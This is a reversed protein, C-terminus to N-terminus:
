HDIAAGADLDASATAGTGHVKAGGTAQGAVSATGGLGSRGWQSARADPTVAVTSRGTNGSVAGRLDTAAGADLDGSARGAAARTTVATEAAAGVAAAAPKSAARAQRRVDEAGRASRDHARSRLDGPREVEMRGGFRGDGAVGLDGRHGGFGGAAGGGFGGGLGGGLGQAATTAGAALGAVMVVGALVTQIKM